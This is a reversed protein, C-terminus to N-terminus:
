GRKTIIKENNYSYECNLKYINKWIIGNEDYEGYGEAPLVTIERTEGLKMGYIGKELGIVIQEAGQLFVATGGPRHREAWAAGRDISAIVGGASRGRDIGKVLSTNGARYARM